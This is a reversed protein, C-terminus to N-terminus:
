SRSSSPNLYGAPGAQAPWAHRAPSAATEAAAASVSSEREPSVTAPLEKPSVIRDDAAEVGRSEKAVSRM